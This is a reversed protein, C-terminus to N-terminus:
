PIGKRHSAGIGAAEIGVPLSKLSGTGKLSDEMKTMAEIIAQKSADDANAFESTKTYGRLKELEPRIVDAFMGGFEGFVVEWNINTNLAQSEVDALKADREKGLSMREGETQAKRIKEAYEQAIAYKKQQFTGYEKLYDRLSELEAMRIENQSKEYADTEAKYLKEFQKNEDDTLTISSDDFVKGKNAPNKEFESRALDKKKQLYEAKQRDIAQMEKKHNQAMEELTKEAGEDMAAIRADEVQMQLDQANRIREKANTKQLQLYEDSKKKLEIGQKEDISTQRKSSNYAKKSADLADKLRDREKKFEAQPLKNTKSSIFDNYAKLDAEYKKKAEKIWDSSSSKKEKRKNLERELAQLQAQVDNKKFAGNLDTNTEGIVAGFRKGTHKLDALITKRKDIQKKLEENSIGTLDKFYDDVAKAKKQKWLEDAQKKLAEREAKEADSLGSRKIKVEEGYAYTTEERANAQDKKNLENIRKNVAYLENDLNTISNKTEEKAIEEKIKKIDKLMDLETSYKAFIQPYYKELSRLADTRLETSATEDEATSILKDMADKHENEKEIAKQKEENYRKMAKEAASEATALKYITYILGTIVSAILVYPNLLTAKAVSKLSAALGNQAITLLKTKAIAKAEADSLTVNAAAALRKEIIIRETLALEVKQMAAVTMVVAKYTGYATAAVMIAEGVKQWNEVLASTVSLGANILGESSKGIENFMSQIADKINGIQGTITKSQAEMLGGFKGGESTMSVIAKEVEPFGVKGETVLDKVKDSTVGFQKALEETLPIGRGLFQNLDQTYMRGQVMTTGYLYALDNFPISLGAAIDGLRTLTENVKDAELGYALLQKAGNTVDELGFPTIAATQVLQKMLANAKEESGLMTNFAVELQQFEGRVQAVKSIFEKASFAVGMAAAAKTIKQFLADISGGESEVNSAFDQLKNEVEQLKRMFNTTDATVGFHLGSM